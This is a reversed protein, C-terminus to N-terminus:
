NPQHALPHEPDVEALALVRNAISILDSAAAVLRYKDTESFPQAPDRLLDLRAEILAVNVTGIRHTIIDTLSEVRTDLTTERTNM